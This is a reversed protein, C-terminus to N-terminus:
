RPAPGSAVAKAALYREVLTEDAGYAICNVANISAMIEAFSQVMIEGDEEALESFVESAFDAPEISPDELCQACWRKLRRAEAALDRFHDLVTRGSSETCSGGIRAPRRTKGM